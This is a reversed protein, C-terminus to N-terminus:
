IKKYTVKPKNSGTLAEYEQQKRQKEVDCISCWGKKLWHNHKPCKRPDTIPKQSSM